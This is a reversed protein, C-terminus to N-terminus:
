EESRTDRLILHRKLAYAIPISFLVMTFMTFLFAHQTNVISNGMIRLAPHIFHYSVYGLIDVILTAISFEWWRPKTQLKDGWRQIIKWAIWFALLAAPLIEAM